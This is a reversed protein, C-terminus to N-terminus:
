FVLARFKLKNNSFELAPAPFKLINLTSFATRLFKSKTKIKTLDIDPSLYWQRYRKIDRRDFIVNGDKDFTTNSFGGYLGEAGYGVSLSLWSPLNSKFLFSKLNFSFWYTQANYDKLLREPLSAGYLNNARTQLTGNYKKRHSSFKFQIRQEDWLFEQGAFLSTGLFNASIDPWSWGWNSSHADLFEIVTLYSFGSLSGLWVAKNKEKKNGNYGAWKWMATTARSTNYATWAHGVKDVQLWEKADNFTHFSTKPYDKYWAENLLIISGAYGAASISGILIKRKQSQSSSLFKTQTNSYQWSPAFVSLTSNM